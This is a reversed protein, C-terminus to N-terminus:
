HPPGFDSLFMSMSAKRITRETDESEDANESRPARQKARIQERIADRIAEDPDVATEPDVAKDGM